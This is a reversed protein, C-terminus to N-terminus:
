ALKPFNLYANEGYLEKAKKDYERAADYQDDFVGLFYLQKKYTIRVQWKNNEHHKSVGKFRSSGRGKSNQVNVGHSCHRLNRKRNDLGNGNKHDIELKEKKGLIFQHMKVEKGDIRTYVYGATRGKKAKHFHWKYPTLKSLMDLDVIAIHNRGINLHAINESM